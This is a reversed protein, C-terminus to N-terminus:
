DCPKLSLKDEIDIENISRCTVCVLHHHHKQKPIEYRKIGDGFDLECIKGKNILKYIDRYITTKNAHVEKLIDPVSIPNQYKSILKYIELEFKSEGQM